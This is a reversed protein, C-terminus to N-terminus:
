QSLFDGSQILKDNRDPKKTKYYVYAPVTNGNALDINVIKRKYLHDGQPEPRGPLRTYGEKQNCAKLLDKKFVDEGVGECFLYTGKIINSDGSEIAYPYHVDPSQYLAFGKVEAPISLVNCSPTKSGWETGIKGDKSYDSRLTGYAFVGLVVNSPQVSSISSDNSSNTSSTTSSLSDQDPTTDTYTETHSYPQTHTQTLTQTYTDANTYADTHSYPHTDANTYTDTYADTHSDPQTYTQTDTKTYVDADTDSYPYSLTDTHTYTPNDNQTDTRNDTRTDTYTDTRTDDTDNYDWYSRHPTKRGLRNYPTRFRVRKEPQDVSSFYKEAKGVDGLVRDYTEEGYLRAYKLLKSKKIGNREYEKIASINARAKDYGLNLYKEVKQIYENFKIEDPNPTFYRTSRGIERRKAKPSDLSFSM